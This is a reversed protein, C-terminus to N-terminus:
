EMPLFTECILGIGDPAFTFQPPAVQLGQLDREAPAELFEAQPLDCGGHFISYALILDRRLRRRELSIINQRRLRNEYPLERLGDPHHRTTPLAFVGTPGLGHNAQDPGSM